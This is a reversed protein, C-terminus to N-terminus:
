HDDTPMDERTTRFYYRTRKGGSATVFREPPNELAKNEPRIAVLMRWYEEQWPQEVLPTNCIAKLNDYTFVEENQLFYSVMMLYLDVAAQINSILYRLGTKDDIKEALADLLEHEFGVYNARELMTIFQHRQNRIITKSRRSEHAAQMYGLCGVVVGAIGIIATALDFWSLGFM